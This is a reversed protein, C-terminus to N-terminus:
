EIESYLSFEIYFTKGEDFFIGTKTDTISNEKIIQNIRNKLSDLKKQYTEKFDPNSIKDKEYELKYLSYLQKSGQVSNKDDPINKVNSENLLVADPFTEFTMKKIIEIM